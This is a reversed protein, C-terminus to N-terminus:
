QWSLGQKVFILFAYNPTTNSNAILFFSCIVAMHKSWAVDLRNNSYASVPPLIKGNQKDEDRKAMSEDTPLFYAVFQEGSEDKM